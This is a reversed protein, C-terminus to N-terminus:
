TASGETFDDPRLVLATAHGARDLEALVTVGRQGDGPQTDPFVARRGGSPLKPLERSPGFGATLGALDVPETFEVRVHDLVDGSRRVARVSTGVPPTDEAVTGSAHVLSRLMVLEDINM